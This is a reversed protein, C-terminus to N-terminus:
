APSDDELELVIGGVPHLANTLRSFKISERFFVSTTWAYANVAGFGHFDIQMFGAERLLKCSNPYWDSNDFVILGGPAISTIASVTAEYRFRISDIVILSYPLPSLRVANAFGGADEKFLLEVNEPKSRKLKEYWESDTEVATVTKARVSWYLTSNGAGFEFINCESYDFQALYELAPYTIWPIPQGRADVPFDERLSNVQGQKYLLVDLQDIIKALNVPQFNVEDFLKFNSRTKYCNLLVGLKSPTIQYYMLVSLNAFLESLRAQYLDIEENPFQEKLSEYAGEQVSLFQRFLGMASDIDESGLM